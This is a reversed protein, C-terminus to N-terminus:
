RQAIVFIRKIVNVPVGNFLVFTKGSEDKIFLSEPDRYVKRLKLLDKLNIEILISEKDQIHSCAVRYDTTFYTPINGSDGYVGKIVMNKFAGTDHGGGIYVNEINAFEEPKVEFKGNEPSDFLEAKKKFFAEDEPQTKEMIATSTRPPQLEDIVTLSTQSEKKLKMKTTESIAPDKAMEIIEEYTAEPHQKKIEWLTFAEFEETNGKLTDEFSLISGITTNSPLSHSSIPELYHASETEPDEIVDFNPEVM